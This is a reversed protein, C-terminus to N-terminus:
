PRRDISDVRASQHQDDITEISTARLSFARGSQMNSSTDLHESRGYSRARGALSQASSYERPM